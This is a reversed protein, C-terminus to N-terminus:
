PRRSRPRSRTHPRVYTGDRRYYGRVRVTGGSSPAASSSGSVSSNDDASDKAIRRIISRGAPIHFAAVYRTGNLARITVANAGRRGAEPALHALLDADPAGIMVAPEDFVQVLTAEPPLDYEATVHQVKEAPVANPHVGPVCAAFLIASAFTLFRSPLSFM